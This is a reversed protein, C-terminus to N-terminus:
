NKDILVKCVKALLTQDDSNVPENDELWKRRKFKIEAGLQNAILDELRQAQDEFDQRLVALM